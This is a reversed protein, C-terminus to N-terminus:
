HAAKLRTVAFGNHRQSYYHIRVSVKGHELLCNFSTYGGRWPRGLGTCVATTNQALLGSKRNVLNTHWRLLLRTASLLNREAQQKTHHASPVASAPQVALVVAALAITFTTLLKM